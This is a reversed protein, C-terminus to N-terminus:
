LCFLEEEEEEEEEGSGEGTRINPGHGTSNETPPNGVRRVGGWWNLLNPFKEKIV